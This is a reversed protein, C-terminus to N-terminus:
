DREKSYRFYLTLLICLTILTVCNASIIIADRLYMGYLAWLFVGSSFQILTILSVDKVSRSKKVKIIQPVFSFTTLLAAALGIIKWFM